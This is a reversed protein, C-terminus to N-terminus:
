FQFDAASIDGALMDALTITTGAFAIEVDDGVQTVTLDGFGSAGSTIKIMDLGDEFDEILDNGDGARFVFTDPGHGGLLTDNGAGGVLKDRMRGGSLLDNGNGGSLLDKGDGGFILDDGGRGELRDRQDTGFLSEDDRDGYREVGTWGAVRFWSSTVAEEFGAGDTYTVVLSLRHGRDDSTIDHTAGTAGAIEEGARLWQYSFAGLGDADAITSDDATVTDGVTFRNPNANSSAFGIAGTPDNNGDDIPGTPPATEIAPAPFLSDDIYVAVAVVANAHAATLAFDASPGAAVVVGDVSWIYTIDLTADTPDIGTIQATLTGGVEETGTLTVGIEDPDLPAFVRAYVGSFEGDQNYSRWTVTFGGNPLATTQPSDQFSATYTNVQVEGGIRTGDAAFVQVYVGPGSGDQDSSEWTAVWGGGALATLDHGFQNGSEYTNVQVEGGRTTGDANFTQAFVGSQTPDTGDQGYSTWMVVWGGGELQAINAGLQAGTTYTNVQMDPGRLTGDADYARFFIGYNDGDQGDSQWVVVWGGDDLAIVSGSNQGNPTYGNVQVEGGQPTGDANYAQMYMGNNSGDQGMSQWAIVWGGDSLAAINGRGAFQDSTTYSNVQTETGLSTGDANYAQAYIGAGSGDQGESMWHIVWGGSALATISPTEQDGIFNTNVQVEGGQPTGDADFAQAHIGWGDGDQDQSQWTIAWGGDALAAIQQDYQNSTTYSNIQFEGGRPTGDADYVQAFVGAFSGDQQFSTWTIVWGGDTLTTIQPTDQSGVTHTNVQIETRM